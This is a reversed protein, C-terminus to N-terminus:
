RPPATGPHRTLGITVSEGDLDTTVVYDWRSMWADDLEEAANVLEVTVALVADTLRGM